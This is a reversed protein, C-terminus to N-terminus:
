EVGKAYRITLTCRKAIDGLLICLAVCLAYRSVIVSAGDFSGRRLRIFLFLFPLFFGGEGSLLYRIM